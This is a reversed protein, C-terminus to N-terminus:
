LTGGNVLIKAGRAELLEARTENIDNQTRALNTFAERLDVLDGEFSFYRTKAESFAKNALNLEIALHQLKTLSSNIMEDYNANIETLNQEQAAVQEDQAAASLEARNVDSHTGLNFLPFIIGIGASYNKSQVLRANELDGVSALAVIQPYYNAKAELAKAHAVNSNAQAQALLPSALLNSNINLTNNNEPLAPCSISQAPIGLIISLRYKVDALRTNFFALETNAQETQAQSLDGDVISRQGTNVFHNVQDTIMASDKCLTAWTIIQTQDFSCEYFTQLALQKIQDRTVKTANESLQAQYQAAEVHYTTRGFDWITQQAVLGYGWGQRYPSGMLGEVGVGSSSGPFGTSDIAEFNLSPYYNAKAMDITQKAAINEYENASIQPSNKEALKLAQQLTLNIAQQAYSSIPFIIFISIFLLYFFNNKKNM